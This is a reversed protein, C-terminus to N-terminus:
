GSHNWNKLDDEESPKDYLLVKDGVKFTKENISKDYQQKVKIKKQKIHEKIFENTTRIKEQLEQTITM